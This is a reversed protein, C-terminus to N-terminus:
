KLLENIQKETEQNQLRIQSAVQNAIMVMVILFGIRMTIDVLGKLAPRLEDDWIQAQKLLMEDLTGCEEGTQYLELFTEPFIKRYRGLAESVSKGR